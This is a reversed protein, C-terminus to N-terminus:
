HLYVEDTYLLVYQMCDYLSHQQTIVLHEDIIFPTLGGKKEGIVPIGSALSDLAVLGFTELFLSPMLTYQAKSMWMITQEKPLRGHYFLQIGYLPHQM